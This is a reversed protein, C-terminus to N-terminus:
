NNNISKKLIDDFTGCFLIAENNNKAYVRETFDEIVIDGHRLINLPLLSVHDVHIYDHEDRYYGGEYGDYLAKLRRGEKTFTELFVNKYHKFLPVGIRNLYYNIRDSEFQKKEELSNFEKLM